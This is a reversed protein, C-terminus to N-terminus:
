RAVATGFRAEFRRVCGKCLGDAQLVSRETTTYVTWDHAAQGCMTRWAFFRGDAAVADPDVIHFVRGRPRKLLEVEDRMNPYLGVM